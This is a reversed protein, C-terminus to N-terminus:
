KVSHIYNSVATLAPKVNGSEDVLGWGGRSEITPVLRDSYSIWVIPLGMEHATQFAYLALNAQENVGIPESPQGIESIMLPKNIGYQKMAAQVDLIHQKYVTQDIWPEGGYPHVSLIDFYPSPNLQFFETTFASSERDGMDSNVIIKANPNEARIITSTNKLLELYEAPTGYRGPRETMNPEGWVEWFYVSNKLQKVTQRTFSEWDNMEDTTFARSPPKSGVGSLEGIPYLGQNAAKEVVAQQLSNSNEFNFGVKVGDFGAAKISKMDAPMSNMITLASVNTTSMAYNVSFVPPTSMPPLSATSAGLMVRIVWYSAAGIILIAIFRGIFLGATGWKGTTNANGM